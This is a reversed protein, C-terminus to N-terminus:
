QHWLSKCHSLQVFRYGEPRVKDWISTYITQPIAPILHVILGDAPFSQATHYVPVTGVTRGNVTDFSFGPNGHNCTDM